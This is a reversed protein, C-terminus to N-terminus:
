VKMKNNVKETNGINKYYELAGKKNRPNKILEYVNKKTADIESLANFVNSEYLIKFDKNNSTIFIIPISNGATNKAKQSISIVKKLISSKEDVINDSIIIRDYDKNEQLERIIATFNKVIKVSMKKNTDQQYKYVISEILNEQNRIAFLVRM